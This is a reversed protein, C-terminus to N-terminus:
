LCCWALCALSWICTHQSQHARIQHPCCDVSVAACTACRLWWSTAWTGCITPPTTLLWGTRIALCRDDCSHCAVDQHEDKQWIQMNPSCYWQHVGPIVFASFMMCQTWVVWWCAACSMVQCAAVVAGVLCCAPFVPCCSVTSYGYLQGPVCQRRMAACLSIPWSKVNIDDHSHIRSQELMIYPVFTQRKLLARKQTGVPLSGVCCVFCMCPLVAFAHWSHVCTQPHTCELRHPSWLRM